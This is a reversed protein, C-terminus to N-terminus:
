PNSRGETAHHKVTLFAVNPPNLAAIQLQNRTPESTAFAVSQPSSPLLKSSGTWFAVNPVPLPLGFASPLLDLPKRGAHSDDDSLTGWTSGVNLFWSCCVMQPLCRWPEIHGFIKVAVHKQEQPINCRTSLIKTLRWDSLLARRDHRKDLSAHFLSFCWNPDTAWAALEPAMYGLSIADPPSAAQM